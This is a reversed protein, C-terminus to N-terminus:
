FIFINKKVSYFVFTYNLEDPDKAKFEDYFGSKNQKFYDNVLYGGYDIFYRNAINNIKGKTIISHGYFTKEYENSFFHNELTNFYDIVRSLKTNQNDCDKLLKLINNKLKNVKESKEKENLFLILSEYSYLNQKLLLLWFLDRDWLISNTVNIVESDNLNSIDLISEQNHYSHKVLIKNGNKKHIVINMWLNNTLLSYNDDIFDSNNMLNYVNPSNLCYYLFDEGNNSSSCYFANIVSLDHNGCCSLFWPKGLYNIFNEPEMGRDFLDGACILLDKNKNFNVNELKKELLSYNSHLDGVIYINDYDSENIELVYQSRIFAIIDLKNKNM